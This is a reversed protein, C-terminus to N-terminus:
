SPDDDPSLRELTAPDAAPSLRVGEVASVNRVLRTGSLSPAVLRPCETPAADTDARDIALVGGIVDVIRVCVRFGDISEVVVHTADPDIGELLEVLELGRWRGSIPDGSGCTTRHTLEVLEASEVANALDIELDGRVTEPRLHATSPATM